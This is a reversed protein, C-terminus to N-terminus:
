ANKTLDQRAFAMPLESLRYKMDILRSVISWPVLNFFSSDRTVGLNKLVKFQIIKEFGPRYRGPRADFGAKELAVSMSRPNFFGVHIEPFVYRWDLM